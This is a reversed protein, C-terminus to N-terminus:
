VNDPTTRTWGRRRSCTWTTTCPWPHVNIPMGYQKGDFMGTALTERSSCARTFKMAALKQDLPIIVGKDAYPGLETEHLAFALPPNGAAYSADAQDLPHGVCVAGRERHYRPACGPLRKGHRGIYAGDPGTMGYYFTSRCPAAFGFPIVACVLIALLLLRKM